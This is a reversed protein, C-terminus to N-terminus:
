LYNKEWAPMRVRKADRVFSALDINSLLDACSVSDTEHQTAFSLTDENAALQPRNTAAARAGGM